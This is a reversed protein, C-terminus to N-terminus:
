DTQIGKDISVIELQQKLAQLARELNVNSAPEIQIGEDMSVIEGVQKTSQGFKTIKTESDPELWETCDNEISPSSYAIVNFHAWDRGSGKRKPRPMMLHSHVLQEGQQVRRPLIARDTISCGANQSLRTGHPPATICHQHCSFTM